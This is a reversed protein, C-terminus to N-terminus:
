KDDSVARIEITFDVAEGPNIRCSPVPQQGKCSASGVGSMRYDIMLQTGDLPVLDKKHRARDLEHLDYRSAGFSFDGGFRLTKGAIRAKLWRTATHSGSEQPKEYALAPDDPVYAYRGLLAHARKDEYCEAPGLGFYTMEELPLSFDFAYGYRPLWYPLNEAIKARQRIRLTGNGDIRYEIRGRSIAQRGPVGFLIDGAIVACGAEMSARLNRVSLEPYAINGFEFTMRWLKVINYAPNMADDNDTPARFCVFRMPRDLVTKGDVCMRSLVGEDRRFTYSVGAASVILAQV